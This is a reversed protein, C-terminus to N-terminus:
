FHAMSVSMWCLGNSSVNNSVGASGGFMSFTKGSGTMGYAFCTLNFGKLLLPIQPEMTTQFINLTTAERGFVGKFAYGKEKQSYFDRVNQM